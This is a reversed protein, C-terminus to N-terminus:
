RQRLHVLRLHRREGRRIAAVEAASTLHHKAQWDMFASRVERFLRVALDLYLDGFSANRPPADFVLVLTKDSERGSRPEVRGRSRRAFRRAAVSMSDVFAPQECELLFRFLGKRFRRPRIAPRITFAGGLGLRGLSINRDGIFAAV